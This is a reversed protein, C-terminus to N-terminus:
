ARFAKDQTNFYLFMTIDLGSFVGVFMALQWYDSMSM